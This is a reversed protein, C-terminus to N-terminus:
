PTSASPAQELESVRDELQEYQASTPLGAVQGSLREVDGSLSGVDSSLADLQKDVDALEGRAAEASQADSASQAGQESGLETMQSEITSIDDQMGAITPSDEIADETDGSAGIGYYLAVVALLLAVGIGIWTWMTGNHRADTPDPEGLAHPAPQYPQQPIRATDM